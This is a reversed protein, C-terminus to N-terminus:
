KLYPVLEPVVTKLEKIILDAIAKAGIKSFHTSDSKIFNYAKSADPGIKNHHEISISNLNIFPVGSEKAVREAVRAFAPLTRDGKIIRPAINGKEDFTRRTVSSLVIAKSGGRTVRQVYDKLKEGYAKANYRKMDNHGFQILIYNPKQKILLDLKKSLSDLIAGNKAFNLVTVQKNVASAFAPGWGYTDAVTSDGILGITLNKEKAEVIDPMTKGFTADGPYNFKLRTKAQELPLEGSSSITTNESDHAANFIADAASNISIVFGLATVVVIFIVLARVTKM